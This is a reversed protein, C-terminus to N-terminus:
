KTSTNFNCINIKKKGKIILVETTFILVILMLNSCTTERQSPTYPCAEMIINHSKVYKIKGLDKWIDVVMTYYRQTHSETYQVTYQM